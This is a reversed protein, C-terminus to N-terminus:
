YIHLAINFLNHKYIQKPLMQKYLSCIKPIKKNNLEYLYIVQERVNNSRKKSKIM